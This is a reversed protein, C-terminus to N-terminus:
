VRQLGASGMPDTFASPCIPRSADAERPVPGATSRPVSSGSLETWTPSPLGRCSVDRERESFISTCVWGAVRLLVPHSQLSDQVPQLLLRTEDVCLGPENFRRLPHTHFDLNAGTGQAPRHTRLAPLAARAVIGQLWAPELEDRQPADLDKEHKGPAPGVARGAADVGLSNGPRLTPVVLCGGERPKERSPGLAQAPLLDSLSKLRTPRADKAGDFHRHEPTAVMDVQFADFGQADVLDLPLSPVVVQSEDVLNIFVALSQEPDAFLPLDLRQQAEKTPEALFAARRQLEEAAVHPPGVQPDDGFLRALRNVDEIAEVDHGVQALCDVLDAGSLDLIQLGFAVLGDQLARAPQQELPGLIESQGLLTLKGVQEPVIQFRDTAVQEFLVELVEPLVHGRGPGSAEEVVPAPPGQARPELRHFLDGAHQPSMALEKEVPEAGLARNGPSDDFAEVVLRFQGGSPREAESGEPRYFNGQIM